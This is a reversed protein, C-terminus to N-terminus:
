KRVEKRFHEGRASRNGHVSKVVIEEVVVVKILYIYGASGSLPAKVQAIDGKTHGCSCRAGRM